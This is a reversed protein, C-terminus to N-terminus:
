VSQRIPILIGLPLFVKCCINDEKAFGFFSFFFFVEQKFIQKEKFFCLVSGYESNFDM